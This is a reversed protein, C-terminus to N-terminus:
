LRPESRVVSEILSRYSRIMEQDRFTALIKQRALLGVHKYKAENKLSIFIEAWTEPAAQPSVLFGDTGHDIVYPIEGVRSAVTPIGMSMAELITMPMQERYSTLIFADLTNLYPLVDDQQGAFHVHERLGRDQCLTALRKEEPGAGILLFKYCPDKQRCSAFVKIMLDFNKVPDLRGSFGIVFHKNEFHLARRMRERARDNRCYINTDIGNPIFAVKHTGLCFKKSLMHLLEHSVVVTKSALRYVAFRVLARKWLLSTAEDINFGHENHVIKHVGSLRGLWIADTAGWNYTMLMAPRVTRIAHYLAQFYQRRGQPKCFDVLRMNHGHIWRTADHKNDLALLTHDYEHMTANIIACLVKEMGGLGFSPVVHLIKM